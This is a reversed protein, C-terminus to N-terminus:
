LAALSRGAPTCLLVFAAVNVLATLWFVARFETKVSKHRLWQQGLLAGPWGGALSLLHLTRERIRRRGARASAKDIAYVALTLASLALYALGVLGPAAWKLWALAYLCVFAPIPLLQAGFRAQTM